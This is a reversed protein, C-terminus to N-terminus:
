PMVCAMDARSRTANPLGSDGHVQGASSAQSFTTLPVSSSPSSCCCGSCFRCCFRLSANFLYCCDRSLIAHQRAAIGHAGCGNIDEDQSDLEANIYFDRISHKCTIELSAQKSMQSGLRNSNCSRSSSPQTAKLSTHIM